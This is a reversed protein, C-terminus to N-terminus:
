ERIEFTIVAALSEYDAEEKSTPIMNVTRLYWHGARTMKATVIGESNTLASFADTPKGEESYGHQGEYSADVMENAAPKGNILLKMSLEGGVKVSYPNNIPVLEIPFGLTTKYDDSQKNGVQFIAKVHKSYSKRAPNKDEGSKKREELLDTLGEHKLSESFSEATYDNVRPLTSVGFVGTGEGGTRIKLLTQNNEEFWLDDTPRMAEEGPNILAVMNMRERALVSESSTFTGNYVSIQTESNPELYFTKLKIFLDHSSLVVFCVLGSLLLLLNQKM